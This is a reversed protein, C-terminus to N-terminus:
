GDYRRCFEALLEEGTRELDLDDNLVAPGNVAVALWVPAMSNEPYAGVARVEVHDSVEFDPAGLESAFQRLGEITEEDASTAHVDVQLIASWESEGFPDVEGEIQDASITAEFLESRGDRRHHHSVSIEEATELLHEEIGDTTVVLTDAALDGLRQNRETGVISVIGIVYMTPLADILRLLNRIVADPLTCPQGTERVVRLNSWRKGFTRGTRAEFVTFYGVFISVGLLNEISRGFRETLMPDFSTVAFVIAVPVALLTMAIGDLFVALGRDLWSAPTAAEQKEWM